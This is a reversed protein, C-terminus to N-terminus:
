KSDDDRRTGGLLLSEIYDDGRKVDSLLERRGEKQKTKLVEIYRRLKEKDYVFFRNDGRIIWGSKLFEEITLESFSQPYEDERSGIMQKMEREQLYQRAAAEYILSIDDTENERVVHVKKLHTLWLLLLEKKTNEALGSSTSLVEEFLDFHENVIKEAITDNNANLAHALTEIVSRLRMDSDFRKYGGPIYSIIHDQLKEIDVM